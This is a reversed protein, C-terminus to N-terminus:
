EERQEERPRRRPPDDPSPWPTAGLRRHARTLDAQLEELDVDGLEGASVLYEAFIRWGLASAVIQAARIRAAEDDLGYADRITAAIAHVPNFRPPDAPLAGTLALHGAIRTWRGMTSEPEFGHGSLPQALVDESLQRSLDDFTAWVLEERSGVYRGILSLQVDAERAVDRLSVQDVGREGFLKAAADLM